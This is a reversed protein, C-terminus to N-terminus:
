AKKQCVFIYHVKSLLTSIWIVLLFDRALLSPLRCISFLSCRGPRSVCCPLWTGALPVHCVQQLRQYSPRTHTHTTQGHILRETPFAPILKQRKNNKCYLLTTCYLKGGTHLVDQGRYPFENPLLLSLSVCFATPWWLAAGGYLPHIRKMM